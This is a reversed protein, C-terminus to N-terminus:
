KVVMVLDEKKNVGYYYCKQNDFCDKNLVINLNFGVKKLDNFFHKESFLRVHNSQGYFYYRLQDTNINQEEFNQKLFKSYPTQLIAIGGPKLLRYIEKIAQLYDPIHELVHNCIIFNFIENAFEIQTADIKKITGDKPHLDGKIYELPSLQCIKVSLNKEPAFHLIRSGKIKDWLNIKDFFMFLHRERDNAQCYFCRFNDTDSGVTDLKRIFEPRKKMGGRFKSFRYFTTKCIYCEKYKGLRNIMKWINLFPLVLFPKIKKKLIKNM